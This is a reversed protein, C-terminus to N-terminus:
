GVCAIPSCVARPGPRSTKLPHTRVARFHQRLRLLLRRTVAMCSRDAPSPGSYTGRPRPLWPQDRGHNETHDYLYERADTFGDGHALSVAELEYYFADYFHTDHRTVTLVYVIRLGLAAVIVLVMGAWFRSRM